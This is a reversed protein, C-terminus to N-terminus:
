FYCKRTASGMVQSEVYHRLLHTTVQKEIGAKRTYRNLIRSINNPKMRNHYRNIFVSPTSLPLRSQLYDWLSERLETNMPLARDKKGKGQIVTLTSAKFDLNQWDLAIIESRRLGLNLSTKILAIDRLRAKDKSHEVANILRDKEDKRLFRPLQRPVKPREVRKMINKEIMDENELFNFFSAMSDLKHNITSLAYKNTRLWVNYLRITRLNIDEVNTGIEKEALFRLFTRADQRYSAITLDSRGKAFAYELFMEYTEMFEM